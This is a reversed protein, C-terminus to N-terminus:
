SNKRSKGSDMKVNEKEKINIIYNYCLKESFDLNKTQITLISSVNASGCDATIAM